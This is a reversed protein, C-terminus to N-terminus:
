PTAEQFMYLGPNGPDAAFGPGAFYFLGPFDPDESLGPGGAGANLAAEAVGLRGALALDAAQGAALQDQAEQVDTQVTDIRNGLVADANQAAAILDQAKQANAAIANDGNRLLENGDPKQFGLPTTEIAV